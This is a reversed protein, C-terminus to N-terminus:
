QEQNKPQTLRETTLPSPLQTQLTALETRVKELETTLTALQEDKSKNDSLTEKEKQGLQQIKVEANRLRETLQATTTNLAQNTHQLRAKDQTLINIQATFTTHTQELAKETTARDLILQQQLHTLKKKLLLHRGRLRQEAERALISQQQALAIATQTQKEEPSLGLAQRVGKILQTLRSLDVPADPKLSSTNLQQQLTTIRQELSYITAQQRKIEAEKTQWGGPRTAQSSKKPPAIPRPPAASDTHVLPRDKLTDQQYREAFQLLAPVGSTDAALTISPFLLLSLLCFGIPVITSDGPRTHAPMGTM